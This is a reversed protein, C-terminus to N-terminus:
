GPGRRRAGSGGGRAEAERAVALLLEFSRYTLADLLAERNPYRRYLTGVGLGAEAAIAAM